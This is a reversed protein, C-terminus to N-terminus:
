SNMIHSLGLRIGSTLPGKRQIEYTELPLKLNFYVLHMIASKSSTTCMDKKGTNSDKFCADRSKM